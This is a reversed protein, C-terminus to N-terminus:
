KNDWVLGFSISMKIGMDMKIYSYIQASIVWSFSNNISTAHSLFAEIAWLSTCTHRPTSPLGLNRASKTLSPLIYTPRPLFGLNQM